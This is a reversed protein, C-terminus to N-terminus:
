GSSRSGVRPLTPLMIGVMQVKKREKANKYIIEELMRKYNETYMEKVEKTLNIRIYKQIYM